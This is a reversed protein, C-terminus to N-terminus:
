NNRYAPETARPELAAETALDNLAEVSEGPAPADEPARFNACIDCAGEYFDNPQVKGATEAVIRAMIEPRPIREGSAYRRSAEYTTGIRRAFDALDVNMETLYSTLKM